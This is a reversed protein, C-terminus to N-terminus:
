PAQFPFKMVEPGVKLCELRLHLRFRQPIRLIGHDPDLLTKMVAEPIKGDTDVPQFPASVSAHHLASIIAGQRRGPM